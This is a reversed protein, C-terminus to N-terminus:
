LRSSVSTCSPGIDGGLFNVVTTLGLKHTCTRGDKLLSSIVWEKFIHIYYLSILIIIIIAQESLPRSDHLYRVSVISYNYFSPKLILVIHEKEKPYGM